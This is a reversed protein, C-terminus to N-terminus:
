PCRREDAGRTRRGPSARGSMSAVCTSGADAHCGPRRQSAAPDLSAPSVPQGRHQRQRRGRVVVLLVTSCVLLGALPLVPTAAADVLNYFAAVAFGVAVCGSLLWGVRHDRSRQAAAFCSGALLALVLAQVLWPWPAGLAEVVHVLGYVALALTVATRANVSRATGIIPRAPARRTSRSRSDRAATRSNFSVDM